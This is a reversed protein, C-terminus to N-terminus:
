PNDPADEAPGWNYVFRLDELILGASTGRPLEIAIFRVTAGDHRFVAPIPASPDWVPGSSGRSPRLDPLVARTPRQGADAWYVELEDPLGADSWDLYLGVIPLPHEALLDVVIVVKEAIRPPFTWRADVGNPIRDIGRVAHTASVDIGRTGVVLGYAVLEATLRDYYLDPPDDAPRTSLALWEPRPAAVDVYEVHLRTEDFVPDGNADLDIGFGVIKKTGIFADGQTTASLLDDINGGRIRSRSNGQLLTVGVRYIREDRTKYLTMEDIMMSHCTSSCNQWGGDYGRIMVYSGPAPASIGPRFDEYDLETGDIWHGRGPSGVQGASKEYWYRLQEETQYFSRIVKTSPLQWDLLWTDNRYGRTYPIGAERHWYSITESCWAERSNALGFTEIHWAYSQACAASSCGLVMQYYPKGCSSRVSLGYPRVIMDPIKGNCSEETGVTDLAIEHINAGVPDWAGEDSFCSCGPGDRNFCPMALPLPIEPSTQPIGPLLVITTLGVAILVQLGRKPTVCRVM